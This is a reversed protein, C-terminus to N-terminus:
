PAIMDKALAPAHLLKYKFSIDLVPQVLAPDLREAYVARIMTPPVLTKAYKELIRGSEARNRNAWLATETNAAAFRRVADAHTKVFDATGYWASLMFESAIADSPAGLRRRRPHEGARQARREEGRPRAREQDALRPPVVLLSTATKSSWVVAPAIMM